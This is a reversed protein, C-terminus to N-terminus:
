QGRRWGSWAPFGNEDRLKLLEDGKRVEAAIIAPKGAITVRSGKVELHDGKQIRTDQRDLYWAPGLHVSVNEKETKLELHIGPGMGKMPSMQNVAVVTGSVTEITSPNYLRGYAGKMGWGGSGQPGQGPAAYAATSASLMLVVAFLRLIKVM